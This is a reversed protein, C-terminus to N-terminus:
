YSNKRAMIRKKDATKPNM